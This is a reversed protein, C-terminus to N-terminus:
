SGGQQSVCDGACVQVSPLNLVNLEPLSAGFTSEITELVDNVLLANGRQNPHIGDTSFVGNPSFDPALSTGSVRVGLVGDSLGFLDAFTGTAANTSHFAIRTSNANAGQVIQQMIGNLTQRRTEIEVIEDVTLTYEDGLPVVVGIQSQPNNPDALTGLVSGASLLVLEDGVQTDGMMPRAQEYPVLAARQQATIAGAQELQDFKPGLDELNDDIILIPNAGAEYNVKRMAADDADHGLNAVIADLAANFGAFGQNLAGATQEDLFIQDYSVARFYPIALIPPIDLVVGKLDPVQMLSNIVASFRTQYDATSTFIADNTAGSITYGLVDNNGIWLSFFTPEASIADQLITSGTQGDQSPNSAFRAYFPSYAPNQPSNPGGTAPTLLQGVQIGPVGFNNLDATTGSYPSIPDGNIVPSPGPINTDLKFRGLVGLQSNPNEVATNFGNESNIDPQNFSDTGGVVEFQSNMLAAISNQQGADYLAADMYGATLSNGIAVYNSLDAEGATYNASPPEPLPNNALRDDILSQEQGECGTFVVATLLLLKSLKKLRKM